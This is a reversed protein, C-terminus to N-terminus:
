QCLPLVGESLEAAVPLPWGYIEAPNGVLMRWRATEPVWGTLVELLDVADPPHAVGIHPWNSAWVLREPFRVAAARGIVAVDAFDPAGTRSVEYPAALKLWVSGRDLLRLLAQFGPHLVTVPELFKGTHDIVVRCPLKRIQEEREAFLRGDMQLQIIWGLPAIRAAVPALMAWPLAGGPLMQFRAGRIGREHLRRLETDTVGDDIVAIGRTQASGLEAIAALTCSNNTGYATPQVVVARSLGLRDRIARYADARAWDPGPGLATAAVPMAPDFVHIHTDCAGDPLRGSM